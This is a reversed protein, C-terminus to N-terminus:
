AYHQCFCYITEEQKVVSKLRTYLIHKRNLQKRLYIFVQRNKTATRLIFSSCGLTEIFGQTQVPSEFLDIPACHNYVDPM